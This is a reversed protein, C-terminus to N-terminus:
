MAQHHNMQLDRGNYQLLVELFSAYESIFSFQFVNHRLNMHM